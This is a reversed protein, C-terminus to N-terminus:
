LTHQALYKQTEQVADYSYLWQLYPPSPFPANIDATPRPQARREAEPRALEAEDIELQRALFTNRVEADAGNLFVVGDHSAAQIREVRPKRLTEYAKTADAIPRANEWAWAVCEGLVAGDEIACSGGSGAHPLMAHWADGLLVVGGNESRCTSLPPLEALRWQVCPGINALLDRIAPCADGFEAAVQKPNAKIGWYGFPVNCGEGVCVVVDYPKHPPLPWSLVYKGAMLWIQSAGRTLLWSLNPNSAMVDKDVTCRYAKEHFPILEVSATAPISGRVASRLGDAGVILDASLSRGDKLHVTNTEVDVSTVEANFQIKTGYGKAGEALLQQYDARHISWKPAGWRVNSNNAENLFMAGLRENNAGDRIDAYRNETVCARFQEGLGYGQIVRVAHSDISISAGFENLEPKGELVTVDLGKRSLAIAASLGGIGAGAILVSYPKSPRAISGM